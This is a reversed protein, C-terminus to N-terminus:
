FGFPPIFKCLLIIRLKAIKLIKLIQLIQTVENYDKNNDVVHLMLFFNTVEGGLRLTAQPEDM